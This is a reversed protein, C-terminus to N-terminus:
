KNDVENWLKRIWKFGLVLIIGDIVFGELHYFDYWINLGLGVVLLAKWANRSAWASSSDHQLKGHPMLERGWKDVEAGCTACTYGGWLAQRLSEPKRVRPLPAGCRPCTVADLNIGWRNKTITGHIVLLMGVALVGFIAGLFAM